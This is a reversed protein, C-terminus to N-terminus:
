RITFTLLREREGRPIAQVQLYFYDYVKYLIWKAYSYSGERLNLIKSKIVIMNM